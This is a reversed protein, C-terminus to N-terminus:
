KHVEVRFPYGEARAMKIAREVKTKAIDYAYRGIVVRDGKHVNMMTRVADEYTKHFIIVLVEVVFDMPTFDDNFMVVKYLDPQKVKISTNEKIQGETAM